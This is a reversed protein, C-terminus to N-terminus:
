HKAQSWRVTLVPCPAIRVVREAVSGVFAHQLGTRGHTGMVILDCAIKKAYAIIEAYPVGMRAETTVAVGQAQAMREWENLRRTVDESVARLAEPASLVYGEPLAYSPAQYVHLLLLEGSFRRALDSAIALAEKSCDSFDIPCCIKRWDM